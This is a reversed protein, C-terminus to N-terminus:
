PAREASIAIPLLLDQRRYLCTGNVDECVYYVAYAPISVQGPSAGAPARVELEVTRVEQSVAQAPNPFTHRRSDVSWGAPPNVWVALDGAENNWHAKKRRDPRFALHIRASVGPPVASPVATVEALIFDGRDRHIRGGPDPEEGSEGAAPFAKLPKAFEAGSPEVALRVPTEGRAAVDRRAEEVWDYFPYPKDLRPGYQQIRRRWIYQNPNLDLAQQWHAVARQFDEPMREGSDYRKRHAVGLRFHSRADQPSSKLARRYADIAEGASRPGGWLLTADAHRRWAEATAGAAPPRRRAEPARLPPPAYGPPPDFKAAAFERAFAGAEKLPVNVRRIVGYEDIAVTIPVAEVDLLNLSDVLVPWNMRKWQMFLRCRDPHQEQIIGAM